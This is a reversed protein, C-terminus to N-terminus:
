RDRAATLESGALLPTWGVHGHRLMSVDGYRDQVIARMTRPRTPSSKPVSALVPEGITSRATHGTSM